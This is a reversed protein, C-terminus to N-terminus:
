LRRLLPLIDRVLTTVPRLDSFVGSAASQNLTGCLIADAAPWYLMFAKLFGTHGWLEGGGAIGLKDLDFHRIGLGYSVGREGTRVWTMMQARNWPDRFADGEVFARLFRALDATTSVLGGSGWDASTSRLSGYDTAGSYPHSAPRGSEVPRPTERYLLYSQRMGLPAFIWRRYAEQLTLGTVAEIVLGALLFGTDAYHWGEGPIFHADLHAKTWDVVEAPQWLRGPDAKMETVFPFNGDPGPTGDGFFDAVGSTHSLLQRLTLEPGFDHGDIVHLGRTVSEPLYAGIGSDLDLLEEEALRICLTATFMKTISAIQFADDPRLPLGITPDCLGAAGSWTFEPTEIRLLAGPAGPEDRLTRELLLQFRPDLDIQNMAHLGKRPSLPIM